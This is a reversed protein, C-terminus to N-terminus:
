GLFFEKEILGHQIALRIMEVDSKVNLKDHLRSKYTSVTKPSLCLKDSIVQPRHGQTIMLLIQMERQSLREFPSENGGPLMSLALQQAIESSIHKGGRHVTRIAQIMEDIHCDKTLYGVAGAELLRRPFPGESHVTVVIIRPASEHLLIRRIAELGGIGPMNVDMLLVDPSLSRVAEVAAEGSDAEGVVEIGDSDRRDELLRRIGTRVLDHDDVVLVRIM